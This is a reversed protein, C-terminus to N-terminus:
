IENKLEKYCTKENLFVVDLSTTKKPPKV